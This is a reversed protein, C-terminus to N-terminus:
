ERRNSIFSGISRVAEKTNSDHRGSTLSMVARSFFDNGDLLKIKALLCNKKDCVRQIQKSQLACHTTKYACIKNSQNMENETTMSSFDRTLTQIVHMYLTQHSKMRCCSCWLRTQDWKGRFHTLDYRSTNKKYNKYNWGIVQSLCEHFLCFYNTQYETKKKLVQKVVFTLNTQSSLITQCFYSSDSSSVQGPHAPIKRKKEKWDISFCFNLWPLCHFSSAAEFLLHHLCLSFHSIVHITKSWYWHRRLNIRGNRM